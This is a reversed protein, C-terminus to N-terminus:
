PLKNNEDIVRRKLTKFPLREKYKLIKELSYEEIETIKEYKGFSYSNVADLALRENWYKPKLYHKAAMWATYESYMSGCSKSTVYKALLVHGMEHALAMATLTEKSVYNYKGRPSTDYEMELPDINIRFFKGGDQTEFGCNQVVGRKTSAAATGIFPVFTIKM